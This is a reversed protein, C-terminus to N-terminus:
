KGFFMSKKAEPSALKKSLCAISFKALVALKM